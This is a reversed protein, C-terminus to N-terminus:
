DESEPSWGPHIGRCGAFYYDTISLRRRIAFSTVDRFLDNLRVVGDDNVYVFHPAWPNLDDRRRGDYLEKQRRLIDARGALPGSKWHVGLGNKVVYNYCESQSKFLKGDVGENVGFFKAAKASRVEKGIIKPTEIKVTKTFGFDRTALNKKLAGRVPVMKEEMVGSSKNVYFCLDSDDPRKALCLTPTTWNSQGHLTYFHLTCGTPIKFLGGFKQNDPVQGSHGFIVCEKSTELPSLLFELHAGISFTRENEGPNLDGPGFGKANNALYDLAAKYKKKKDAPIHEIRELVDRPKEHELAYIVDKLASKEEVFGRSFFGHDAARALRRFEEIDFAM